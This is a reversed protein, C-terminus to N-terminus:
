LRLEAIMTDLEAQDFRLAGFNQVVVLVPKGGLHGFSVRRLMAEWLYRPVSSYRETGNTFWFVAEAPKGDREAAIWTSEGGAVPRTREELVKWGAGQFCYRPDHVAHRDKSGDIVTVYVSRWPATYERHLLDVRGLVKLERETLPIDRGKFQGRELPVERLREAAGAVPQLSWAAGCLVSLAILPWLFWRPRSKTAETSV